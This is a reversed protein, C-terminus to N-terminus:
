SVESNNQPFIEKSQNTKVWAYTVKLVYNVGTLM